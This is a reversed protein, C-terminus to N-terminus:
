NPIRRNALKSLRTGCPRKWPLPTAHEPRAHGAQATAARPPLTLVPVGFAHPVSVHKSNAPEM